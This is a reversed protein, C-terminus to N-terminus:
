PTNRKTNGSLTQLRENHGKRSRANRLLNVLARKLLAENARLRPLEASIEDHLRIGHMLSRLDTELMRDVLRKLDVTDFTINSQWPDHVHSRLSSVLAHMRKVDAKMEKLMTLRLPDADGKSRGVKHTFLQLALSLSSLPGTIEHILHALGIPIAGLSNKVEIPPRIENITEEM